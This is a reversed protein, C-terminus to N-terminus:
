QKILLATRAIGKGHNTENIAFGCKGAIELSEQWGSENVHGKPELLLIKGKQKITEAVESFLKVIDPVEHVVYALLCFDIQDKLFQINQSGSVSLHLEIEDEVGKKKARKNLKLLMKKQIEICYVKGTKGTIKAMPITFYGMGPGIELIKMGPQIYPALLKKPNELLKRLPNVLIYGIWVPCVHLKTEM